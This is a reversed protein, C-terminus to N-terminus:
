VGRRSGVLEVWCQHSFTVFLVQLLNWFQHGITPFCIPLVQRPCQLSMPIVGRWTDVQLYKTSVFNNWTGDQMGHLKTGGRFIESIKPTYLGPARFLRGLRGFMPFVLAPDAIAAIIDTVLITGICDKLLQRCRGCGDMRSIRNNGITHHRTM